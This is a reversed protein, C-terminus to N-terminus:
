YCTRGNEVTIALFSERPNIRVMRLKQVIPIKKFFLGSKTAKTGNEIASFTQFILTEKSVLCYKLLEQDNIFKSRNANTDKDLLLM